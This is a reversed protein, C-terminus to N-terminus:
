DKERKNDTPEYALKDTVILRPHSQFFHYQDMFAQVTLDAIKGSLDDQAHGKSEMQCSVSNFWTKYYRKYEALNPVIYKVHGFEHALHILAKPCKVVVISISKEGYSSVCINQNNESHSVNTRGRFAQNKELPIVKVYVDTQNGIKDRISNIENFLHPDIIKMKRILAETLNYYKIYGAETRKVNALYKRLKRINDNNGSVIEKELLSYINGITERARQIEVEYGNKIDKGQSSIGSVLLIFISILLSRAPIQIAYRGSM